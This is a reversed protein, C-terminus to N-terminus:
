AQITWGICDLVGGERALETCPLSVVHAGPCLEELTRCAEDNEAVGYAPVIILDGVRLFNVYNGVASAIGDCAANEQFHFLEHVALGAQQLVGRLRQGYGPAVMACSNM